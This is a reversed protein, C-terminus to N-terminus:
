SSPQFVQPIRPPAVEKSEIQTCGEPPPFLSGFLTHQIVPHKQLVEANYMKIMGGNIKPWGAVGSIDNIMPSNEALRGSKVELIFKICALYLYDGAYATVLDVNHISKPSIHPHGILQASGFLFPLFQYDDLGWVGHSGAPELFYVKQLKRMVQLYRDTVCLVLAAFDDEKFCSLRTLCLLLICFSFEHGTGYDIRHYNGCGHRLYLSLEGSFEALDDPLIGKLLDEAEADLRELWIRFAKNGFRTPQATPPIEDIWNSLTNLLGVMKLIMPSSEATVDSVKKGKVSENLALVFNMYLKYPTSDVWRELQERSFIARTPPAPKMSAAHVFFEPALGDFTLSTSTTPINRGAPETYRAQM